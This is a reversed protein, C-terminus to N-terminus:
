WPIYLDYEDKVTHEIDKWNIYGKSISDAYYNVEEVLQKIDEEPANHKDILVFLFLYLMRRLANTTAEKKAKNVQAMTMPQRNPNVKKKM